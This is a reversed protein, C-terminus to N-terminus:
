SHAPTVNDPLIESVFSMPTVKSFNQTWAEVPSYRDSIKMEPVIRFLYNTQM